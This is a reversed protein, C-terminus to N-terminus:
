NITNLEIKIKPLGYQVSKIKSYTRASFDFQYNILATKKRKHFLAQRNLVGASDGMVFFRHEKENKFALVRENNKTNGSELTKDFVDLLFIHTFNTKLANVLAPKNMPEFVYAMQIATDKKELDFMKMGLETIFVVHTTVSDTKKVVILGSFHKNVVDISAKYKTATGAPHIVPHIQNSTVTEKHSSPSKIQYNSFRCSLFVLSSLLLYLKPSRLM